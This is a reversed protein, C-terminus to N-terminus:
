EGDAFREAKMIYIEGYDARDLKDPPPIGAKKYAWDIRTKTDSGEWPLVIGTNDGKRYVVGDAKDITEGNYPILEGVVTISIRSKKLGTKTLPPFRKDGMAAAVSMIIVEEGINKASPDLSGRCGRVKGEKELTVFVARKIGPLRSNQPFVPTFKEGNLYSNISERAFRLLLKKDASSLSPSIDADASMGWM